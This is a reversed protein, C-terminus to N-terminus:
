PHSIRDFLFSGVFYLASRISQLLRALRQIEFLKRWRRCASMRCCSCLRMQNDDSLLAESYFFM